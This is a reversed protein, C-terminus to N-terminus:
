RKENSVYVTGDETLQQIRAAEIKGPYVLALGKTLPSRIWLGLVALAMALSAAALGMVLATVPPGSALIRVTLGFTGFFVIFASASCSALLRIWGQLKGESWIGLILRAVGDFPNM